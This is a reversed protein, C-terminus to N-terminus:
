HLFKATNVTGTEEALAENVGDIMNDIWDVCYAILANAGSPCDTSDAADILGKVYGKNYKNPANYMVAIRVVNKYIEDDSNVNMVAYVEHTDAIHEIFTRLDFSPDSQEIFVDFLIDDWDVDENDDEDAWLTRVYEVNVIDLRNM